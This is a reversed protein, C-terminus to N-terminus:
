TDSNNTVYIVRQITNFAEMGGFFSFLLIVICIVQSCKLYFPFRSEYLALANHFPSAIRKEGSYYFYCYYFSVSSLDSARSAQTSFGAVDPM